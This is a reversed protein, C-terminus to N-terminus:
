THFGLQYVYIALLIVLVLCAIMKYILTGYAVDTVANIKEVAESPTLEDYDDDLRKMLKRAKNGTIYYTGADILLYLVCLVFIAGLIWPFSDDIKAIFSGEKIMLGWAIALIAYVAKRCLSNCEKGQSYTMEKLEKM